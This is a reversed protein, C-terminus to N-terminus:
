SVACTPLVAIASKSFGISTTGSGGGASSAPGEAPPQPGAAPEKERISGVASRGEKKGYLLYHELGSSFKGARVAAAVDPYRTLYFSEDFLTSAPTGSEQGTLLFQQFLSAYQGDTVAVAGGANHAAYYSVDLYASPDRSEYQGFALYHLLASPLAGANLATAVDANHALYYASDFFPTVARGEALGFRLFHDFGSAFRRARVAAAVDANLQLYTAEDYVASPDRNEFQGYKEFHVWGSAFAGAGIAAAVDPNHQEYYREDFAVNPSVYFTAPGSIDNVVTQGAITVTYMGVDSPDWTGGPATLQYTALHASGLTSLGTFTAFASFGRPGTVKVYHNNQVAPVLTDNAFVLSLKTSAGGPAHVDSSGHLIFRQDPGPDGGLASTFTGVTLIVAPTDLSRTIPGQVTVNYLGNDETGWAGGPADIRYTAVQANASGSVSLLTATASYGNPGTVKVLSAADQIASVDVGADDSYTITLTASTGGIALAPQQLTAVTTNISGSALYVDNGEGSILTHYYIRHPAGNVNFIAGDPLGAFTGVVPGPSNKEILYESSSPALTAGLTVNAQAILWGNAIYTSGAGLVIDGAVTLPPTLMKVTGGTAVLGGLPYDHFSEMFTVMGGTVVVKASVAGMFLINGDTVHTEATLVFLRSHLAGDGFTLSGSGNLTLVTNAATEPASWLVSAGAATTIVPTAGTMVLPVGYYNVTGAFAVNNSVTLTLYNGSPAATSFTSDGSFSLNHLVLNDIDDTTTGHVVVDDGSVPATHTDWNNPNSWAATGGAGTWTVLSLLLRSELSELLLPTRRPAPKQHRRM